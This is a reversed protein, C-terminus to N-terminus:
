CNEPCFVIVILGLMTHALAILDVAPQGASRHLLTGAPTNNHQRDTWTLISHHRPYSLNKTIAITNDICNEANYLHGKKQQNTM